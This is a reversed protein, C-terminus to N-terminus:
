SRGREIICGGRGESGLMSKGKGSPVCGNRRVSDYQADAKECWLSVM